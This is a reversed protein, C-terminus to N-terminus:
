IKGGGGSKKQKLNFAGNTFQVKEMNQLEITVEEKLFLGQTETTLFYTSGSKQLNWDQKKGAIILTDKRDGGDIWGNHM